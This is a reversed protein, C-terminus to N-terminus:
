KKMATNAVAEMQRSLRWKAVTMGQLAVDIFQGFFGPISTKSGGGM